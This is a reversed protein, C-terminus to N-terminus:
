RRIYIEADRVGVPYTEYATVRDVPVFIVYVETSDAGTANVVLEPYFQKEYLELQNRVNQPCCCRRLLIWGDSERCGLTCAFDCTGDPDMKM